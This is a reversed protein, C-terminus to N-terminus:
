ARGDRKWARVSDVIPAFEFARFLRELRTRAAAAGGRLRLKLLPPLAVRPVDPDL